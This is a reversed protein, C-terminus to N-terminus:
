ARYTPIRLSPMANGPRSPRGHGLEGEELAFPRRHRIASDNSCSWSRYCAQLMSVTEGYHSAQQSKLDMFAEFQQRPTYVLYISDGHGGADVFGQLVRRSKVPVVTVCRFNRLTVVDLGAFAFLDEKVLREDDTLVFFM